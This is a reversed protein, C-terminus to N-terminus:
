RQIVRRSRREVVVVQTRRDQAPVSVKHRNHAQTTQVKARVEDEPLGMLQAAIEIQSAIQDTLGQAAAIAEELVPPDYRTKRQSWPSPVAKRNVM